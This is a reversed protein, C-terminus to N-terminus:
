TVTESLWKLSKGRTSKENREKRKGEGKVYRTKKSRTLFHVDPCNHKSRVREQHIM